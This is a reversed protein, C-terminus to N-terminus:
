LHHFNDERILGVELQEADMTVDFLAIPISGVSENPSNIRIEFVQSSKWEDSAFTRVKSGSQTAEHDTEMQDKVSDFGILDGDNAHDVTAHIHIFFKM